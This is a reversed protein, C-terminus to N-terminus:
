SFGMISDDVDAEEEDGDEEASDASDAEAEAEAEAVEGAELTFLPQEDAEKKEYEFLPEMGSDPIMEVPM